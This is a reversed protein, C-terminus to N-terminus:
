RSERVGATVCEASRVREGEMESSSVLPDIERSALAEEDADEVTLQLTEMSEGVICALRSFVADGVLVSVDLRRSLGESEIENVFSTLGVFDDDSDTSSLGEVESVTDSSAVGVRDSEFTGVVVSVPDHVGEDSSECDGDPLRVLSGVTVLLTVSENCEHVPSRVPLTSEMVEEYEGDAEREWRVTGKVAVRSIRSLRVVDIMGVGSVRVIFRRQLPLGLEAIVGVASSVRDADVDDASVTVSVSLVDRVTVRDFLIVCDSSGDTVPDREFSAGECVMVREGEASARDRLLVNVNHISVRLRESTSETLRLVSARVADSDSNRDEVNVKESAIVSVRDSECSVSVRVLEVSTLLVTSLRCLGLRPIVNERDTVSDADSVTEPNFTDSVWVCDGVSSRDKWGDLLGVIKEEAEVDRHVRVAVGDKEALRLSGADCEAM